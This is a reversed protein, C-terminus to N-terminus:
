ATAEVPHFALYDEVFAEAQAIARVFAALVQPHTRHAADNFSTIDGNMAQQLFVIALVEGKGDAENVSGLSCYGYEDSKPGPLVRKLTGKLWHGEIAILARARLLTPVLDDVLEQDLNAGSLYARSLNAGSLYARSLYAGSLYARSLDARSLDARSLDARSLNAGSLDARSLNARSLNASSLNARSLNAGILNAGSLDASSLDASSLDARKGDPAGSAWKKHLALLSTLEETTYQM